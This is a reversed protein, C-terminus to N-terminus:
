ASVLDADPTDHAGSPAVAPDTEAGAPAHTGEIDLRPVIRDLWAPMWWNRDGLMEMTSPVLVLRIVTADIVM